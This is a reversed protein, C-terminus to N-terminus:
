RILSRALNDILALAGFIVAAITLGILYDALMGRRAFIVAGILALGLLVLAEGSM